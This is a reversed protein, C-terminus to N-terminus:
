AKAQYAEYFSILTEVEEKSIAQWDGFDFEGGYFMRHYTSIVGILDCYLQEVRDLDLGTQNERWGPQKVHKRDLHALNKNRQERLVDIVPKYSELLKSHTEVLGEIEDPKSFRFLQANGKAQELLYQVNVSDDKQVIVLRSLILCAQDMCAFYFTDFLTPTLRSDTQDLAKYAYLTRLGWFLEDCLAQIITEIQEPPIM